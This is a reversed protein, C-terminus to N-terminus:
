VGKKNNVGCIPAVNDNDDKKYKEGCSACELESNLKCGCKCVYASFKAPNGVVMTYDPVEKTVVSGAGIFAYKGICHGCVITANAGITAGEKILTAKFESKREIFSRPNAVNTFVANPGIFVNDECIVGTYLAVNNKVKVHNGLIVGSEIFANEGINCNAGIKAGKMVHCWHWIRTGSGIEAGEDIVATEHVYYEM